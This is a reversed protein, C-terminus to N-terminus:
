QSEPDPRTPVSENLSVQVSQNTMCLYTVVMVLGSFGTVGIIAPIIGICLVLLGLMAAGFSIVSLLCGILFITLKNGDTIQSSMKLSELPGLNRDIILNQFQSFKLGLIIFISIAIGGGVMTAIIMNEPNQITLAILSVPIGILLLGIVTFIFGIMLMALIVNVLYPGGAFLKNFHATHNRALDLLFLTQGIGLWTQIAFIIFLVGTGILISLAPVDILPTLFETVVNLVVNLGLNISGVTVVMGCIILWQQKFVPWSKSFVESVSTQRPSWESIIKQNVTPDSVTSPSAYPNATDVASSLGSPTPPTPTEGADPLTPIFIESCNPCKAQYGAHEDAVRLLKQCKPCRFEVPM